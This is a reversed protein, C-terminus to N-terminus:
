KREFLYLIRETGSVPIEQKKEFYNSFAKVFGEPTYDPFIDLRSALLKQVQSDSKPVFEIILKKGLSSLYRAVDVLPVNNSIALHHILALALVLDAPGRQTISDRENNDWGIAPSPNTLDLVLPLLRTENERKCERYNMEVAAPDIDASLVFCGPVDLALRSFLGTNAGLDWVSQPALPNILDRVLGKKTEFANDSYNTIDYYNAWETGAPSWTLNRITSELNEILGQMALRSMSGQQQNVQVQKDSYRQQANAHLYIHSLLGFNLRCSWPLVRVALELPIGDIYVRLLQSLRIDTRSMLVLPALFHQCFQRYAVWPSGEIYKEFSLTDILVPRAGSFQINYASADKLSMGANLAEKQIELTLLAADKLQSFSWEYPYSIFNIKEPQIVKYCLEPIEGNSEVEVHSVLMQRRVLKKYLGSSHFLDYNERYILNVQRYLQGDKKFIFGSPDRFSAGLRNNNKDM